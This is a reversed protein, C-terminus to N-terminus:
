DDKSAAKEPEHYRVKVCSNAWVTDSRDRGFLDYSQPQHKTLTTSSIQYQSASVLLTGM